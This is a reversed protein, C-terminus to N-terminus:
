LALLLNESTTHIKKYGQDAALKEIEVRKDQYEVCVLKCGLTKLPLEQFLEYNIGEVDLNIFEYPGPFITLLPGFPVAAVYIPQFKVGQRNGGSSAAWVARHKEDFTSVFDGRSDYFRLIGANANTGVAVNILQIDESCDTYNKMLGQFAAPSPEVLAGTWGREYLARTNSLVVGDHAGVDLFRGKPAGSFYDLIVREEDNQSHMSM